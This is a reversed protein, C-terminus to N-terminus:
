FAADAPIEYHGYGRYTKLKAAFKKALIAAADYGEIQAALADAITRAAAEDEAANNDLRARHNADAATLYRSGIMCDVKWGIENEAARQTKYTTKGVTIAAAATAKRKSAKEAAEAAAATREAIHVPLMSPRNVPASPYCITCCAEGALEVIEAESKGSYEPLWGIRTNWRLSSCARSRHLHGGDVLFFRSWPAARFIAELPEATEDLIAIAARAQTVISELEAKREPSRAVYSLKLQARANEIKTVLDGIPRYIAALKTDIEHPQNDAM